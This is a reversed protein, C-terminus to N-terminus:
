PGGSAISFRVTRRVLPAGSKVEVEFLYNGPDLHALPLQVRYDAARASGFQEPELLLL